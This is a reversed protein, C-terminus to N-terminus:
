TSTKLWLGFDYKCGTRQKWLTQNAESRKPVIMGVDDEPFAECTLARSTQTLSGGSVNPTKGIALGNLFAIFRYRRDAWLGFWSPGRVGHEDFM